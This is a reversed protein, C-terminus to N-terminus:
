QVYNSTGALGGRISSLTGRISATAPSDNSFDIRDVASIVVPGAFTTRGGGFWGYNANGSAGRIQVSTALPGRASASTPSDNSFDIRDVTSVVSNGPNVGGAFWGYNANSTASLGQRAASLLGRPSAATPSDNSFDVREVWSVRATTPQAYGGGFWGYNANSTAALAYRASNLPGRPSASAPSDNAYNIREVSSAVAPAWGGGFWGYNANGTAALAWRTSLLTGRVNATTPSDNAFDIREVTSFVSSAVGGAFWGYNANAVGGLYYRATPLGGRSSTSTPSDNSFDIRDINSLNTVPSSGVDVGGGFWGYTGAGTSVTGSGKYYQTVNFIPTTQVYNSNAGGFYRATGLTGRTSAAATDNSYDIRDVISSNNGGTIWGYFKSGLGAIGVRATPLNGRAVASTPSDNAFDIREVTSLGTPFIGGVFWGYNENSTASGYGKAATLPGRTSGTVLDNSYDKREVSSLSGPTSAHGAYWGYNNNGM